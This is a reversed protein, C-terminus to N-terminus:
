RAGTQSGAMTGDHTRALNTAAIALTASIIIATVLLVKGRFTM